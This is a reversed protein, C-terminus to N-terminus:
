LNPPVTTPTPVGEPNLRINEIKSLLENAMINFPTYSKHIQALLIGGELTGVFITAFQDADVDSRIELRAKGKEVTYVLRGHWDTLERIVRDRMFPLADDAETAANLIPCGGEVPPHLIREKYYYVVAKLKDVVNEIVRTREGVCRLVENVAYDFAALAIEKKVGEKTKADKRFNGYIGGKTLQTAEMIDSMSTGSFGKQNFLKAAERIILQRTRESKKM